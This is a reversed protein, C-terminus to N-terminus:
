NQNGHNLGLVQEVTRIINVPDEAEDSDLHRMAKKFIGDLLFVKVSGDSFKDVVVVEGDIEHDDININGVYFKADIDSWWPQREKQGKLIDITHFSNAVISLKRMQPGGSM